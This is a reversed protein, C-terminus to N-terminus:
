PSRREGLLSRIPNALEGAPGKNPLFACQRDRREAESRDPHFIQKPRPQMQLDSRENM